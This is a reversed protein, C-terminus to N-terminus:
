RALPLTVVFCAGGEAGDEYGVDGGMAKVLEHVIHLGLGTSLENGTPRASLRSFKRFLRPREDEKVGPGRDEIRFVGDCGESSLRIVVQSGPPSFKIANSVLNELTCLLSRRDARVPLTEADCEIDVTTEKNAAHQSLAEIAQESYDRLCLPTMELSSKAEDLRQTQLLSATIELARAASQSISDVLRAQQLSLQGAGEELMSAAFIVGGLPNKLDHAVIELLHNREEVAAALRLRMQRLNLHLQVRSMLEPGHFPKTVYDVAGVALAETVFSKDTVASLFIVPLAHWEPQALLRRCVEFGTMGPMMVDLLLLDPKATRMKALAEEGSGAAIVEHGQKLLMPGVVQINKPEDDVVLILAPGSPPPLPDFDPM